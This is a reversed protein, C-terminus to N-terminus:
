YAQLVGIAREKDGHDALARALLPQVAAAKGQGLKLAQEAEEIAEEALGQRLYAEALNAHSRWSQPGHSTFDPTGLAGCNASSLLVAGTFWLTLLPGKPLRISM